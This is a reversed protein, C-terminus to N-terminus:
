WQLKESRGWDYIGGRELFSGKDWVVQGMAKKVGVKLISESRTLMGEGKDLFCMYEDLLLYSSAMANTDEPVYCPLHKHRDCFTKWQRDTVLFTRADRLRTADENEGAVLLCQFVKWRFPALREIEASMDENWNHINVVTPRCVPTIRDSSSPLPITRWWCYQAKAHWSRLLRLGRKAEDIPLVYSSTDTHFCFGCTYNWERSPFYNVSVPVNSEKTFSKSSQTTVIHAPSETLAEINEDKTGNVDISILIGRKRYEQEVPLTVRAIHSRAFPVWRDGDRMQQGRGMAYRKYYDTHNCDQLECTGGTWDAPPMKEDYMFVTMEELEPFMHKALMRITDGAGQHYTWSASVAFKQLGQGEPDSTRLGKLLRSIRGYDLDGLVAVTDVAPNIYLVRDPDNIDDGAHEYPAIM